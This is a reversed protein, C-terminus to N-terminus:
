KHIPDVPDLQKLELASLADDVEDYEACLEEIQAPTFNRANTAFIQDLRGAQPNSLSTAFYYELMNQIQPRSMYGLLLQRNVRGPRILAPDLKEPHNTTMIVIRGPTDIVGDLANLLGALNLKDKSKSSSGFGAALTQITSIQDDDGEEQAASLESAQMIAAVLSSADVQDDEEETNEAEEPSSKSDAASKRPAVVASACDVDEMVFVVDKYSLQVPLDLGDVTYRLDFLADMLEQNTKMNSLSVAVVHRGTHHAIAKILSTKGTGPPGHLLLGLKNPFGTIAFKGTKNTFHDLLELLSQKEDFFLNDFSKNDGLAYRKHFHKAKDSSAKEEDKGDSSTETADDISRVYMYRATDSAYKEHEVNQYHEFARLILENIADAGDSRLSRFQYVTKAEQIPKQKNPRPVVTEHFYEIGDHVEIWKNKLPVAGVRLGAIEEKSDLFSLDEGQFEDEDDDDQKDDKSAKNKLLERTQKQRFLEYRAPKDDLSLHDSLYLSIAKHLLQNVHAGRRKPWSELLGYRGHFESVEVKRLVYKEGLVFRRLMLRLRKTLTFVDQESVAIRQILIPIAVCIVLDTFADGTRLTNILGFEIATSQLVM